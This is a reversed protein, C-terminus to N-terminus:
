ISRKHITQKPKVTDHHSNLLISPKSEDFYKNTCWVNNLLRKTTINKSQIFSEIADATINEEKSFSQTSILQQLLQLADNYLNDIQM